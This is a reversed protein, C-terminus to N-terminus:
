NRVSSQTKTYPCLWFNRLFITHKHIHFVLHTLSVSDSTYLYALLTYSKLIIKWKYSSGAMHLSFHFFLTMHTNLLILGNVMKLLIINVMLTRLFLCTLKNQFLTTWAWQMWTSVVLSLSVAEITSINLSTWFCVTYYSSFVIVRILSKREKKRNGKVEYLTADTQHRYPSEWARTSVFAWSEGNLVPSLKNQLLISTFM